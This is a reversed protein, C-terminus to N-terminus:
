PKLPPVEHYQERWTSVQDDLATREKVSNEVEQVLQQQKLTSQHKVRDTAM